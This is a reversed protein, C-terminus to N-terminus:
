ISCKQHPSAVPASYSRHQLLLCRLTSCFAVRTVLRLSSCVSLLSLSFITGLSLLCKPVHLLPKPLFITEQPRHCPFSFIETTKIHPFLRSSFILPIPHFYSAVLFLKKKDQNTSWCSHYFQTGWLVVNISSFLVPGQFLVFLSSPSFVFLIM